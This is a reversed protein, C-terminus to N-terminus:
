PLGSRGQDALHRVALEHARFAAVVAGRAVRELAVDGALVNKGPDERARHANHGKASLVVPLRVIAVVM